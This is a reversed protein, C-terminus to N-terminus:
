RAPLTAEGRSLGLRACAQDLVHAVLATHTWGERAAVFALEGDVALSPNPTARVVWVQGVPTLRVVLLAYDRLLLTDHAIRAAREFGAHPMRGVVAAHLESGGEAGPFLELTDNGVLGVAVDEGELEDDVSASGVGHAALARRALAPDSAFHLGLAGAGTFPLGSEELHAALDVALQPETPLPAMLNVVLDPATKKVRDTLSRLDGAVDLIEATLGLRALARAVDKVAADLRGVGRM